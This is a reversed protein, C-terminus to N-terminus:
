GEEDESFYDYGLYEKAEKREMIGDYEGCQFCSYENTETMCFVCLHQELPIGFDKLADRMEKKFIEM